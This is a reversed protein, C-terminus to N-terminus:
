GQVTGQGWGIGDQVDIVGLHRLEGYEELKHVPTYDLQPHRIHPSKPPRRLLQSLHGPNLGFIHPKYEAAPLQAHLLCEQIIATHLLLGGYM